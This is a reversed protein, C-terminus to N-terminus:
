IRILARSQCIVKRRTFEPPCRALRTELEEFPMESGIEAWFDEIPDWYDALFFEPREVWEPVPFGFDRTLYEAVGALFARYQPTFFTSPELEFTKPDRTQYFYDLLRPSAYDELSIGKRVWAELEAYNKPGYEDPATKRDKIIKWALKDWQGM